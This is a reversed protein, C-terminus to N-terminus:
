CEVAREVLVEAMLRVPPRDDAVRRLELHDDARHQHLLRAPLGDLRRNHPQAVGPQERGARESRGVRRRQGRQDAGAGEVALFRGAELRDATVDQRPVAAIDARQQGLLARGQAGLQERERADAGLGGVRDHEVGAVM